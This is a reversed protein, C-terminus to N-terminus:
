EGMCVRMIRAAAVRGRVAQVISRGVYTSFSEGEPAVAVAGSEGRATM